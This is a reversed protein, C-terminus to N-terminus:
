PPGPLNKLLAKVEVQVPKSASGSLKLLDPRVERAVVSKGAQVADQLTLIAEIQISEIRRRAEEPAERLEASYVAELDPTSLMERLVHVGAPDDLRALAVAANYRVTRDDDESVRARLAASAAPDDFYGLAYAARQRVEADEDASSTALAAVVRPDELTGGLRDAQRSLSTAAAVRVERPHSPELARALTALPDATGAAPRAELTEFSGLALALYQPVEPTGKGRPRSLEEDLLATLEGLLVPDRALDADNHILSALEYAARWRRNANESRIARVYEAADRGGTALKGFLVYVLTLFCVLVIVVLFPIVFLQMIFRASPPEVPPLDGPPPPTPAHPVHPMSM